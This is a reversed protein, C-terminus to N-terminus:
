SNLQLLQFICIKPSGINEPLSYGQVHHSWPNTAVTFHYGMFDKLGNGYFQEITTQKNNEANEVWVGALRMKDEKTIFNLCTM